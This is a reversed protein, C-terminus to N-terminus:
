PIVIARTSIKRERLMKLAENIQNLRMKSSVLPKLRGRRVLDVLSPYDAVRCGLSGMVTIERFMLRAGSITIDKATYGIIVVRGGWRVSGYAQRMVEPIGVAEIAVDAGGKTVKRVAKVPDEKKMNILVDAGLEKALQLKEDRRGVVLTYAGLFSAIQVANLGVGGTGYIVVSEGPKIKARNKLAHYPTSMADSIIASEELPM